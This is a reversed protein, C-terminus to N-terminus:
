HKCCHIDDVRIEYCDPMETGARTVGSLLIPKKGLYYALWTLGSPGGIFAKSYHIYTLAGDIINSPVEGSERSFDIM